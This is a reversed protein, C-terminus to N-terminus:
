REDRDDREQAEPDLQADLESRAVKRAEVRRELQAALLRRPKALLVFSLPVSLVLALLAGILGHVGLLYVIGWLAFFLGFRLATYLWMSGMWGSFSPQAPKKDATVDSVM